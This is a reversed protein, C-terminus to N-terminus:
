NKITSIISNIYSSNNKFLSQNELKNNIENVYKGPISVKKKTKKLYWEYEIDVHGIDIAQYGIEALDYALVTATPGLALLILSSKNLKRAQYLIEDYKDFANKHPAIIRKVSNANSLLDNGIGYFSYSGEIIVVDRNEWITKIKKFKDKAAKKDRYIMYPRTFLSNGFYDVNIYYYIHFRQFHMMKSWFHKSNIDMGKLDNLASPLCILLNDLNSSLVESLRKSLLESSNQFSGKQTGLIWNIEGDGFRSVSMKEQVILEITETDNLIKIKPFNNKFSYYFLTYYLYKIHRWPIIFARTYLKKFTKLM